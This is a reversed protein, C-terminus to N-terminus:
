ASIAAKGQGHRIELFHKPCEERLMGYIILHGQDPAAHRALGERVFGMHEVLKQSAVNRETVCVTIRRVKLHLFPYSFITNLFKRTMWRSGHVGAIHCTISVKDYNEYVVAGLIECDEWLSITYAGPWAWELGIRQRVWEGAMENLGPSGLCVYRM